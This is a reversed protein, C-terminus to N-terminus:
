ASKPNKKLLKVSWIIACVSVVLPALSILVYFLRLLGSGSSDFRFIAHIAISGPLMVLSSISGVIIGAWAVKRKGPRPPSSPRGMVMALVLFVLTTGGTLCFIAFGVAFLGALAGLNDARALSPTLGILLGAGIAIRALHSGPRM